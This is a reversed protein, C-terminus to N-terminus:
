SQDECPFEGYRYSNIWFASNFVTLMDVLWKNMTNEIVTLLGFM